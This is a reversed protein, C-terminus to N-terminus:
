EATFAEFESVAERPGRDIRRVHYGCSCLMTEAESLRIGLERMRTINEEFHLDMQVGAPFELPAGDFLDPHRNKGRFFRYYLKPRLWLPALRLPFPRSM